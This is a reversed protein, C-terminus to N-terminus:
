SSYIAFYFIIRKEVREHGFLPFFHLVLLLFINHNKQQIKIEGPFPWSAAIHLGDEEIKFFEINGLVRYAMSITGEGVGM